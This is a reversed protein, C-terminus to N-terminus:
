PEDTSAPPGLLRHRIGAVVPTLVVTAGIRIPKTLQTAAYAAWFKGVSGATGDVEFGTSIAVWFGLLTLLFIALWVVLAITGYEAFLTKLKEGQAKWWTM